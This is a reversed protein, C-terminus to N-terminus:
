TYRIYGYDQAFLADSWQNDFYTQSTGLNYPNPYAGYVYKEPCETCSMSETENGHCDLGGYQPYPQFAYFYYKFNKYKSIYERIVSEPDQKYEMKTVLLIVLVGHYGPVGAEMLQVFRYLYLQNISLNILVQKTLKLMSWPPRQEETTGNLIFM